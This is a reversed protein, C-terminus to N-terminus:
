AGAGAQRAEVAQKAADLNEFAGLRETATHAYYPGDTVFWQVDGREESDVMLFAATYEAFPIPDTWSM